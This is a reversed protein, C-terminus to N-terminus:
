RLKAELQAIEQAFREAVAARRPKMTRTLTGDEVSLPAPLLAVAAVHEWRPRGACAAAVERRLLDLV